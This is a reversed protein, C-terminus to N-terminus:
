SLASGAPRVQLYEKLLTPYLRPNFLINTMFYCEHTCHCGNNRIRALVGQAQGSALVRNINLDHDRVNGLGMTFSECPFLEGTESLVLNLRGAYCPILRRNQRATEYILRRQIIDQAAKLRAGPFRYIAAAQTKLNAELRTIVALYKKLEVEKLGNEAMEGRILSVTHTKIREMRGVKDILEAMVEQNKACFVSNIGLDFNPFQDLLEGLAAYTEMTKRYCGPVGRIADHLTEDGDLSLKVVITSKPCARLIESVVEKIRSTLLGNTPFLIIAPKNRKYFIKTIEPLDERLFIEGGSFALWLLNPLSAAIADIEALSLEAPLSESHAERNSYFCFPCRANCRKTVFFTFQLPRRKCFVAAIHRLPSYRM